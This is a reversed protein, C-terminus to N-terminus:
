SSNMTAEFVLQVSATSNLPTDRDTLGSGPSSVGQRLGFKLFEQSCVEIAVSDARLASLSNRQLGPLFVPYM